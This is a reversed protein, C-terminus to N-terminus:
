KPSLSNKFGKFIKWKKKKQATSPRSDDASSDVGRRDETLSMISPEPTLSSVCVEPVPPSVTTPLDGEPTKRDDTCDLLQNDSVAPCAGNGPEANPINKHFVALGGDTSDMLTLQLSSALNPRGGNWLQPDDATNSGINTDEQHSCTAIQDGVDVVGNSATGEIAEENELFGANNRRGILDELIMKYHDKYESKEREEKGGEAM